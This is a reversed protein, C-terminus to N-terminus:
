LCGVVPTGCEPCRLPSARLDYGCRPCLGKRSSRRHQWYHWIWWPALCLMPITIMWCPLQLYIISNSITGAPVEDHALVFGGAIAHFRRKVSPLAFAKPTLPGGSSAHLGTPVVRPIMLPDSSTWSFWTYYGEGFGLGVATRGGAYTVEAGRWESVVALVASFLGLALISVSIGRWLVRGLRHLVQPNMRGHMPYLMGPPLGRRFPAFFIPPTSPQIM